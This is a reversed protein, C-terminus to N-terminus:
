YTNNCEFGFNLLGGFGRKKITSSLSPEVRFDPIFFIDLAIKRSLFSISPIMLSMWFDRISASTFM